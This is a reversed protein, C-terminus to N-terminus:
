DDLGLVIGVAPQSKQSDGNDLQGKIGGQVLVAATGVVVLEPTAYKM